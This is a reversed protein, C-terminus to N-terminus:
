DGSLKAPQAAVSAHTSGPLEINGAFIHLAFFGAAVAILIVYGSVEAISYRRPPQQPPQESLSM